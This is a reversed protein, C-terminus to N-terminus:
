RVYCAIGRMRWKHLTNPTQLIVTGIRRLTAKCEYLPCRLYFQPLEDGQLFNFRNSDQYVYTIIQERVKHIFQLNPLVQSAEDEAEAL